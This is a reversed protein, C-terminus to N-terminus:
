VLKDKFDKFLRDYVKKFSLVHKNDNSLPIRERVLKPAVGNAGPQLMHGHKRKLLKLSSEINESMIDQADGITGPPSSRRERESEFEEESIRNVYYDNPKGRDSYEM